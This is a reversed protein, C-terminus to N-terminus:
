AVRLASWTEFVVRRCSPVLSAAALWYLVFAALPLWAHASFEGPALATLALYSAALASLTAFDRALRAFLGLSGVIALGFVVGNAAAAAGLAAIGLYPHLLVNLVVNAGFAAVYIGIARRNEGRASLFKAGAYGILAGWLGPASWSLIAATAAVSEAGFAGREYVFRVIAEAHLAAALSLPVGAYLLARLSRAALERFREDGLPALAGLGAVAFPMALLLLATDGLFRAYDLAAVADPSVVSAVRREVVLHLQILVPVLLLLRVARGVPALAAFTREWEGRRPYFPLGRRRAARIGALALLAYAAVFGAAICAPEGSWWAALTGALVGANQWSARAAALRPEGAAVGAAAYVSVVAYLPVGLALVAVMRGAMAATTEEFGPALLRVWQGALLALAVALLLSGALVVAHMGAFVSRGRDTHEMGSRAYAPTFGASVADALVGNMPILFAAQALRYAVAVPGTGYLSATALERGVGLLKGAVGGVLLTRAARFM